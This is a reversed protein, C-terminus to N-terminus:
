YKAIADLIVSPKLEDVNVWVANPIEYKILAGVSPRNGIWGVSSPKIGQRVLGNIAPKVTEIDMALVWLTEPNVYKVSAMEVPRAMYYGLRIVRLGNAIMKKALIGNSGSAELVLFIERDEEKRMMQNVLDDMAGPIKPMEVSKYHFKAIDKIYCVESLAAATEADLAAFKLRDERLQLAVALQEFFELADAADQTGCVVTLARKDRIEDWEALERLNRRLIADNAMELNLLPSSIVEVGYEKNIRQLDITLLSSRDGWASATVVLTKNM